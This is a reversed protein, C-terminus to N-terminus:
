KSKKRMQCAAFGGKEVYQQHFEEAKYFPGGPVIETVIPDKLEGSKALKNRSAIAEMAQKPTHYFIVSRYQEGMDPGQRNPTTPDHLSWFLDLLQQYSVVKPDFEVTVTEAHGTDGQCVRRYSPNPVHGGSFGVATAVVGKQKRFEQEVGWFCGAAFSAIETHGIKDPANRTIALGNPRLKTGPMNAGILGYSAVVALGAVFLAFLAIIKAM